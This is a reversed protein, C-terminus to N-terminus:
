LTTTVPRTKTVTATTSVFNGNKERLLRLLYNLMCSANFVNMINILTKIFLEFNM